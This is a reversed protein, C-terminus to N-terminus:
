RPTAGTARQKLNAAELIADLQPNPNARSYQVVEVALGQLLANRNNIFMLQENTHRVTRHDKIWLICIIFSAIASLTLVGMLAGIVPDKKM